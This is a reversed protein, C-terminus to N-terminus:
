ARGADKDEREYKFFIVKGTEDHIPQVPYEPYSRVLDRLLVMLKNFEEATYIIEVDPM